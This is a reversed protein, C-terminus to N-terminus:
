LTLPREVRLPWGQLALRRARRAVDRAPRPPRGGRSGSPGYRDIEDRRREIERIIAFAILDHM